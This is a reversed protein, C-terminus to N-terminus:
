EETRSVRWLECGVDFLVVPWSIFTSVIIALSTWFGTGESGTILWTMLAAVAFGVIFYPIPLFACAFAALVILLTRIIQIVIRM